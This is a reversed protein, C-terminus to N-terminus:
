IPKLYTDSLRNLPNPRHLKSLLHDVDEDQGGATCTAHCRCVGSTPVGSGLDIGKRHCREACLVNGALLTRLAGAKSSPRVDEAPAPPVAALGVVPGAALEVDEGHAERAARLAEEDAADQDAAAGQRRQTRQWARLAGVTEEYAVASEGHGDVVDAYRARGGQQFRQLRETRM